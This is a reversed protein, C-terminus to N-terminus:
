NIKEAHSIGYEIGNIVIKDLYDLSEIKKRIRERDFEIGLDQNRCYEESIIQDHAYQIDLCVTKYAFFEIM